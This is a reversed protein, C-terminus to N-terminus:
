QDDGFSLGLPTCTAIALQHFTPAPRLCPWIEDSSVYREKGLLRPRREVVDDLRRQAGRPQM